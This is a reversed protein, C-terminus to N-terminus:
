RVVGFVVDSEFRLVPDENMAIEILDVWRLDRNLSFHRTGAFVRKAFIHGGRLQDADGTSKLATRVGFSCVQSAIFQYLPRTHGAFGHGNWDRLGHRAFRVGINAQMIAIHERDLLHGTPIVNTGGNRYLALDDM